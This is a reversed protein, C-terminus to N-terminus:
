IDMLGEPLHVKLSGSELDVERIFQDVIPILYKKGSESEVELLDQAPMEIIACVRGLKAGNEDKVLLGLLQHHYYCGEEPQVAQDSPIYIEWGRLHEVSSRDCFGDFCVLFGQKHPRVSNIVVAKLKSEDPGIFLEARPRFRLDPRETLSKVGVEGGIGHPKVIHGVLLFKQQSV